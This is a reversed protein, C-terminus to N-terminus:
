APLRGRAAAFLAAPAELASGGLGRVLAEHGMVEQDTLDVVPQFLMTLGDPALAWRLEARRRADISAAEAADPM